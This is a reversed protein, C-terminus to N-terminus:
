LAANDVLLLVKKDKSLLKLCPIAATDPLVVHITFVLIVLHTKTDPQNKVGDICSMEKLVVFLGRKGDVERDHKSSGSNLEIFVVKKGMAVVFLYAGDNDVGRSGELLLMLVRRAVVNVGKLIGLKKVPQTISKNAVLEDTNCINVQVANSLLDATIKQVEKPWTANYMLTQRRTPVEKVIKRNKPEFGMVLM